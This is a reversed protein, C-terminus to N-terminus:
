HRRYNTLYHSHRHLRPPLVERVWWCDPSCFQLRSLIWKEIEGRRAIDSTHGSSFTYPICRPAPPIIAIWQSCISPRDDMPNLLVIVKHHFPRVSLFTPMYGFPPPWAHRHLITSRRLSPFAPPFSGSEYKSMSSPSSNLLQQQFVSFPEQLFLINAVDLQHFTTMTTTLKDGEKADHLFVSEGSFSIVAATLMLLSLLLLTGLMLLFWPTSQFLLSQFHSQVNPLPLNRNTQPLLHM